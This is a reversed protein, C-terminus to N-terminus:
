RRRPPANKRAVERSFTSANHSFAYATEEEASLEHNPSSSRGMPRSTEHTRAPAVTPAVTNRPLSVKPASGRAGPQDSCSRQVTSPCFTCVSSSRYAETDASVSPRRPHDARAPQLECRSVTSKVWMSLREFPITVASKSLQFVRKSTTPNSQLHPSQVTAPSVPQPGVTM